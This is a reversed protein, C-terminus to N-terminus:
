PGDFTYREPDGWEPGTYIWLQLPSASRIQGASEIMTGSPTTLYVNFQGTCDNAEVNLSGRDAETRILAGTADRHLFYLSGNAGVEIGDHAPAGPMAGGCRQWKGKVDPCAIVIGSDPVPTCIGSRSPDPADPCRETGEPISADLVYDGRFVGNNDLRMAAPTAAFAPATIVTGSGMINFNVQYHDGLDLAEWTGEQDFGAGRVTSGNEGLYLKYWHNDSTIDLGIDGGDVGFASEHSGCLIWRHVLAASLDAMSALPVAGTPNPGCQASTALPACQAGAGGGSSSSGTSTGGTAEDGDSPQPPTDTRSDGKTGATGNATSPLAGDGEAEPGVARGGCAVVLAGVAFVAFLALKREKMHGM